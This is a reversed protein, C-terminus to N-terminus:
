APHLQASRLTIGDLSGLSLWLRRSSDFEIRMPDACVPPGARCNLGVFDKRGCPHNEKFGHTRPM